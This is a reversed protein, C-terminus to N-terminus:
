KKVKAKNHLPKEKRIAETEASYADVWSPYRQVDIRCIDNAWHSGTRHQAIRSFVTVSIGVYLLTGHCDFHRYLCTTRPTPPPAEARRKRIAEPQALEIQKQIHADLDSQLVYWPASKRQSLRFAAVPLIGRLAKKRATLVGVNFYEQCIDDLLLRTDDTM